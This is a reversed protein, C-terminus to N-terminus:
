QLLGQKKQLLKQEKLRLQKAINEEEKIAMLEEFTDNGFADRQMLEWRVDIEFGGLERLAGHMIIREKQATDSYLHNPFPTVTINAARTLVGLLYDLYTSTATPDDPIKFPICFSPTVKLKSSCSTM